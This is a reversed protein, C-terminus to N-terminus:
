ALLRMGHVSHSATQPPHEIYRRRCVHCCGLIPALCIPRICISGGVSEVVCAIVLVQHATVNLSDWLVRCCVSRVGWIYCFRTQVAQWSTEVDFLWTM